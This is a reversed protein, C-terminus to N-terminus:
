TWRVDSLQTLSEHGVELFLATPDIDSLAALDSKKEWLSSNYLNVVHSKEDKHILPQLNPCSAMERRFQDRSAFSLMQVSM